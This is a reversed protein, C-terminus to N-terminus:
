AHNASRQKLQQDELCREKAYSKTTNNNTPEELPGDALSPGGAVSSEKVFERRIFWVFASLPVSFFLAPTYICYLVFFRTLWAWM